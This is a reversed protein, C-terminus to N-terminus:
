KECESKKYKATNNGEAKVWRRNYLKINASNSEFTLEM